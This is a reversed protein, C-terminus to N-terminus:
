KEIDYPLRLNETFIYERTECTVKNRVTLRFTIKDGVKAQWLVEKKLRNLTQEFSTESDIGYKKMRRDFEKELSEKNMLNWHLSTWLIFETQLLAKEEGDVVILPENNRVVLKGKTVLFEVM